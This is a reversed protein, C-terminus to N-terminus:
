LLTALGKSTLKLLLKYFYLPSLINIKLISRKRLSILERSFLIIEVFSKLLLPYYCRILIGNIISKFYFCFHMIWTNISSTMSVMSIFYTYNRACSIPM